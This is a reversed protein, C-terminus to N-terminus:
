YITLTVENIRDYSIFHTIGKLIHTGKSLPPLTFNQVVHWGSDGLEDVDKEDYDTIDNGDIFLIFNTTSIHDRATQEDWETSADNRTMIITHGDSRQKLQYSSDENGEGAISYFYVTKENGSLFSCGMGLAVVFVVLLSMGIKRM